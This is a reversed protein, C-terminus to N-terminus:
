TPRNYTEVNETLNTVNTFVKFTKVYFKLRSLKELKVVNATRLYALGIILKINWM